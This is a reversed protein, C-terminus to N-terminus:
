FNAYFLFHNFYFVSPYRVKRYLRELTHTILGGVRYLDPSWERVLRRFGDVDGSLFERLVMEYCEPELQPVKVPLVPALVRLKKREDFLTM